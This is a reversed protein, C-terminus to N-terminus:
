TATLPKQSFRKPCSRLPLSSELCNRVQGLKMFAGANEPKVEAAKRFDKAASILLERAEENSVGGIGGAGGGKMAKATGRSLLAAFCDPAAKPGNLITDLLPIAEDFHHNNVLLYSLLVKVDRDFEGTPYDMQAAASKLSAVRSDDIIIDFQRQPTQTQQAYGVKVLMVKTEFSFEIASRDQAPAPMSKGQQVNKNQKEAKSSAGDLIGQVHGLLTKLAQCLETSEDCDPQAFFATLFSEVHAYKNMSFLAVARVRVAEPLCPQLQLVENCDALCRRYLKLNFNAKARGLLLPVRQEDAVARERSNLIKSFERASELFERSELLQEARAQTM